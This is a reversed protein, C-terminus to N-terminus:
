IQSLSDLFVLDILGVRFIAESTADDALDFADKAVLWRKLQVDSRTAPDLLVDGARRLLEANRAFFGGAPFLVWRVAKNLM